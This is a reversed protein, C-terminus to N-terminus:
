SKYAVCFQVVSARLDQQETVRHGWPSCCLSCPGWPSGRPKSLSMDTDTIGDVWRVRQWRKRRRGEIKGLMLTKELSQKCWTALTNSSPDLSIGLHWASSEKCAPCHSACPVTPLLLVLKLGNFQHSCCLPFCKLEFLCNSFMGSLWM